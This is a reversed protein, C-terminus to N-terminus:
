PAAAQLYRETLYTDIDGLARHIDGGSIGEARTDGTLCAALRDVELPLNAVNPHVHVHQAVWERVFLEVDKPM